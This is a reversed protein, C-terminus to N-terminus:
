ATLLELPSALVAITGRFELRGRLEAIIEDRYAVATLVVLQVPDARLHEPAVVPLHTVPTLRGQKHPDSDIVYAIGEGGAQALSALGKAGSGWVAARGGGAAHDGLLRRLQESVSDVARQLTSLDRGADVRVLAQLYEGGMGRTVELVLFGNAELLRALTGASFYNVHDVFFDYFRQHELAQELSPVEVLGVGDATLSGRIGRLFDNPDPIHELVERTAFADYPGDPVPRAATVYGALVDHGAARALERFRASPEIGTAQVGLERLISLYNGDGCGVEIVRRGALGFRDVFAQAQDHQFARMQPSHSVTMIYDDYYAADPDIALQVHGCRGCRLVELAIPRDDAVDEPRLLFSVNRPARTLELAPVLEGASRCVRCAATTASTAAM